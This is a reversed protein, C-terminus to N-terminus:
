SVSLVLGQGDSTVRVYYNATYAKPADILDRFGMKQSGDAIGQHKHNRFITELMTLRAQLATVQKQLQNYEQITPNM